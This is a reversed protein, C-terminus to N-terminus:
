LVQAVADIANLCLQVLLLALLLLLGDVGLHQGRRGARRLLIALLSCRCGVEKTDLLRGATVKQGIAHLHDGGLQGVTANGEHQGLAQGLLLLLLQQLVLLLLLLEGDCCCCRGCCCCLLLGHQNAHGLTCGAGSGGARVGGGSVLRRGSAAAAAAVGRGTRGVRAVLGHVDLWRDDLAHGHFLLGQRQHDLLLDLLLLLGPPGPLPHRCICIM